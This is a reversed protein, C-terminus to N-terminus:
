LLQYSRRKITSIGITARRGLKYTAYPPAPIHSANDVTFNPRLLVGPESAIEYSWHYM